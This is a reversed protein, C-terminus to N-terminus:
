EADKKGKKKGFGGFGQQELKFEAGIMQRWQKRQDATLVGNIKEKTEKDLATTKEQIGQFGGSAQAEKFIELREKGAEQLISKVNEQQEESMKLEAAVKADTFVQTGRTQLRIQRFRKLQPESLIEAVAKDLADPLKELQAESIELEKKVQENNLLNIPNNAFGGGGFGGFGRGGFGGGFKKKPQQQGEALGVVLLGIVLCGLVVGIKRM